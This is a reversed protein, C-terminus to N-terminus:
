ISAMYCGILGSDIYGQYREEVGKSSARLHQVSEATIDLGTKRIDSATKELAEKKVFEMIVSDKKFEQITAAAIEALEKMTRVGTQTRQKLLNVIAHQSYERM